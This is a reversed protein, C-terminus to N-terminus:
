MKCLNQAVIEIDMELALTNIVLSFSQLPLLVQGKYCNLAHFFNFTLNAYDM